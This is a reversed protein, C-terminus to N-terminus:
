YATGTFVAVSFLSNQTDIIIPNLLNREASHSDAAKQWVLSLSKSDTQGCPIPAGMVNFEELAAGSILNLEVKCFLPRIMYFTVGTHDISFPQDVIATLGGNMFGVIKRCDYYLTADDYFWIYDGVKCKKSSFTAASTVFKKNASTSGTANNYPIPFCGYTSAVVTNIDFSAVVANQGKPYLTPSPM